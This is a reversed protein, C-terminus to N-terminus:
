RMLQLRVQALVHTPLDRRQAALSFNTFHCFRRLRAASDTSGSNASASRPLLGSLDDVLRLTRRFVCCNQRWTCRARFRASALPSECICPQSIKTSSTEGAGSQPCRNACMTTESPQGMESAIAHSRSFRDLSRVSTAMLMARFRAGSSANTGANVAPPSFSQDM